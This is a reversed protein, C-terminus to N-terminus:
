FLSISFPKVAIKFLRYAQCLVFVYMGIVQVRVKGDITNYKGNVTCTYEGGDKFQPDNIILSNGSKKMRSPLKALGTKRWQINLFGDGEFACRISQM